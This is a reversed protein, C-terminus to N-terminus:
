RTAGAPLLGLTRLDHVPEDLSCTGFSTFAARVRDVEGTTLADVLERAREPDDLTLAAAVQDVGDPDDQGQPRGLAAHTALLVGLFGHRPGTGRDVHRLAHHLGATCKFAVGLRVCDLVAAALLEAAPASGPGTGGTRLKVRHGAAAVARYAERRDGDPTLPVEVYAAVGPPLEGRLVELLRDVDDAAAPVEVARLVLRTDAAVAALAAPVAAAGSPVTLALDLDEAPRDPTGEGDLVSRLAPLDAAACVFPGVLPAHAGRLAERHGAVAPAMPLSAPPFLAADDLLGEFLRGSIATAPRGPTTATV